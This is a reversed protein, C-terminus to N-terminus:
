SIYDELNLGKYYFDKTVSESTDKIHDNKM